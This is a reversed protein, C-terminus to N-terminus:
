ALSHFRITIPMLLILSLVFVGFSRLFFLSLALIDSFLDINSVRFNQGFFFVCNILSHVLCEDSFLQFLSFNIHLSQLCAFYVMKWFHHFSCSTIDDQLHGSHQLSHLWPNCKQKFTKKPLMQRAWHQDLHSFVQSEAQLFWQFWKIVKMSKKSKKMQVCWQYRRKAFFLRYHM